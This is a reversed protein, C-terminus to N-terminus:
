CMLKLSSLSETNHTCSTEAAGLHGFLSMASFLTKVFTLIKDAPRTGQPKLIFGSKHQVAALLQIDQYSLQLIERFDRERKKPLKLNVPTM